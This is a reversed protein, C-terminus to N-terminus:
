TMFPWSLMGIYQATIFKLLSCTQYQGQPSLSSTGSLISPNNMADIAVTCDMLAATGSPAYVLVQHM